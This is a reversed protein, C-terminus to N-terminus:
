RVTVSGVRLWGNSVTGSVPMEIFPAGADDVIAIYLDANDVVPANILPFEHRVTIEGSGRNKFNFGTDTLVWDSVGNKSIKVAAYAGSLPLKGVGKNEWDISLVLLDGSDVENLFRIQDPVWRYGAFLAMKRYWDLHTELLEDVRFRNVKPGINVQTNLMPDLTLPIKNTDWGYSTEGYVLRNSGYDNLVNFLYHDGSPHNNNYGDYRIHFGKEMAYDLAAEALYAKYDEPNNARFCINLAIGSGTFASYGIDVLQRLTETKDVDPFDDWPFGYDMNANWEGYKAYCRFDTMYVRGAFHEAFDTYFESLEQQYTSNFYCPHRTGNVDVSPVDDWLWDPVGKIETIWGGTMCNLRINFMRRGDDLDDLVNDLLAWNYVNNTPELQDWGVVINLMRFESRPNGAPKEDTFYEFAPFTYDWGVYPNQVIMEPDYVPSYVIQEPGSARVAFLVGLIGWYWHSM